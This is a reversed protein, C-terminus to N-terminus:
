NLKKTHNAQNFIYIFIRDQVTLKLSMNLTKFDFFGYM